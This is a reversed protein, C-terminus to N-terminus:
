GTRDYFSAFRGKLVDARSFTSAHAHVRRVVAGGGDSAAAAEGGGEGNSGVDIKVKEAKNQVYRNPDGRSPWWKLIDSVIM